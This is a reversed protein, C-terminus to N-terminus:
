TSLEIEGDVDPGYFRILSGAPWPSKADLTSAYLRVM